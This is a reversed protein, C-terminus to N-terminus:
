GLGATVAFGGIHDAVPAPGVFDALSFNPQGDPKDAQQRLFHLRTLWSEGNADEDAFVTVDETGTSKSEGALHRLAGQGAPPRRQDPARAHGPCRRVPQPCKRRGGRGGPHASIKGALEWTM